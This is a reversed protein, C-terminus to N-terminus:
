FKMLMKITLEEMYPIVKQMSKRIIDMYRKETTVIPIVSFSCKFEKQNSCM